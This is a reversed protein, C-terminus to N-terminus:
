PRPDPNVRFPVIEHTRSESDYVLNVLLVTQCMGCRTHKDYLDDTAILTTGCPCAFEMRRPPDPAGATVEEATEANPDTKSPIAKLEVTSDQQSTPASQAQVAEIAFEASADSDLNVELPIPGSPEPKAPRTFRRTRVRRRNFRVM